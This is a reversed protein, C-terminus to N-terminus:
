QETVLFATSGDKFDVSYLIETGMPFDQPKGVYLIKKGQYRQQLEPFYTGADSLNPFYYKDFNTVWVWDYAEFRVLHPDNQYKAPDYKSYFLTFM